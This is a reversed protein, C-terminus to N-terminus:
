NENEESQQDIEHINERKLEEPTHQLKTSVGPGNGNEM